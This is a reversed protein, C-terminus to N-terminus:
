RVTVGGLEIGDEVVRTSAELVPLRTLEPWLYMGVRVTYVGPQLPDPLLIAYNDIITDGPQWASTPNAGGGPQGDTQAQPVGTPDVLHTFVTYDRTVPAISRWYLTVLITEGPAVIGPSLSFGELAIKGDLNAEVPQRGAEGAATLVFLYLLNGNGFNQYLGRSGQQGLWRQARHEPDFSVPDGTEVLWVRDYGATLESLLTDASADGALPGRELLRSPIEAREYYTYLPEQLPNNLLILDGPRSRQEIEAMLRGYGGKDFTTDFYLHSLSLGAVGVVAAVSAVGAPRWRGALALIGAGVLLLFAPLGTLLFREYFTYMIPNVGWAFAIMVLLLTGLAAGLSRKKPRWVLSALGAAAVIAGLWAWGAEAPPLTIGASYASLMRKALELLKGGSWEDFRSSAKGDLFGAQSLIWPLFAAAMIAWSILWPGLRRAEKRWAATVVVYAAQGLLVAAAYFHSYVSALSAVVYLGWWRKPAQQGREQRGALTLYSALSASAGLLAAAYMRADQAYYIMFPSISALGMTVLGLKRGAVRRGMLTVFPLSLLSLLVSLYRIAFTTAGVWRIMQSLLLHYLPPHVDASPSVIQALPSRAVMISWAEDGSIGYQDLAFIRLGFGLWLLCLIMLWEDRRMRLTKGGM